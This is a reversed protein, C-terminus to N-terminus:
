YDDLGYKISTPLNCRPFDRKLPAFDVGSM